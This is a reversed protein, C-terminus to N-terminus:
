ERAATWDRCPTPPLYGAAATRAITVAEEPTLRTGWSQEEAEVAARGAALAARGADRVAAMVSRPEVGDALQARRVAAAVLEAGETAARRVALFQWAGTAGGDDPVDIRTGEWSASRAGAQRDEYRRVREVLSQRTVGGFASRIVEWAVGAERANVIAAASVGIAESLRERQKRERRAADRLVTEAAGRAHAIPDARIQEM